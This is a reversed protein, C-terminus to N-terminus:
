RGPWTSRSASRAPSPRFLSRRPSTPTRPRPSTSRRRRDHAVNSAADNNEFVAGQGTGHDAKVLVLLHGVDRRPHPGDLDRQLRPRPALAGTHAVDALSSTTPTASPTTPPCCSATSGAASRAARHATAPRRPRRRQRCGPSRSWTARSPCARRGPSPSASTALDHTPCDLTSTRTLETANNTEGTGAANGEVVVNGALRDHRHHAPRRRGRRGELLTFTFQRDATAAPTLSAAPTPSAHHRGADPRHLQNVITIRDTWAGIDRPRRTGTNEDQWTVTVPGGSQPSAPRSTSARRGSSRRGAVAVSSAHVRVNNTEDSEPRSGSRTPSSSCTICGPRVNAPVTGTGAVTYSAGAGLPTQTDISKSLLLFDTAEQFM